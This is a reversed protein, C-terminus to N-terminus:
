HPLKSHGRYIKWLHRLDDPQPVFYLDPDTMVARYSKLSDYRFFDPLGLAHGFEHTLTAPLYGYRGVIENNQNRVPNGSKRKDLTWFRANSKNNKWYFAPEEIVITASSTHTGSLLGKVCATSTGCGHNPNEDYGDTSEDTEESAFRITVTHGDRNISVTLGESSTETPCPALCLLLGAGQLVGRGSIANAWADAGSSAASSLASLPTETLGPAGHTWNAPTWGIQYEVVHDEQHGANKAPDVLTTHSDSWESKGEDNVARVRHTYIRGYPLGGLVVHDGDFRATFGAGLPPRWIEAGWSKQQVEYRDAGSVPDWRITIEFDGPGM